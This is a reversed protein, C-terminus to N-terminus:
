KIGHSAPFMVLLCGERLNRWVRGGYLEQFESGTSRISVSPVLSPQVSLTVIGTNYCCHFVVFLSVYILIFLSLKSVTM